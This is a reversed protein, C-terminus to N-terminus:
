EEEENSMDKRSQAFKKAVKTGVWALWGKAFERASETVKSIFEDRADLGLRRLTIDEAKIDKVKWEFNLAMANAKLYDSFRQEARAKSNNAFNQLRENTFRDSKKPVEATTVKTTIDTLSVGCRYHMNNEYQLPITNGQSDINPAPKYIELHANLHATDILNLPYILYNAM